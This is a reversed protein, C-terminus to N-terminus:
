TASQSGAIKIHKRTSEQNTPFQVSLLFRELLPIHNMLDRGAEAKLLYGAINQSYAADRDREDNSTTLVFVITKSLRPDQRLEELFELGGMRPMNLDLLVLLPQQLPPQEDTGRLMELAEVGDRAVIMPNNICKKHLARKVVRVDVDDDDVLLIKIPTEIM